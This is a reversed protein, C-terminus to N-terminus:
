KSLEYFSFHYFLCFYTIIKNDGQNKEHKQHDSKLLKDSIVNGIANGAISSGISSIIESSWNPKSSNHEATSVTSTPNYTQIINAQKKINDEKQEILEKNVKKENTEEHGKKEMSEKNERKENSEQYAKKDNKEKNANKNNAENLEKKNHHDKNEKKYIHDKKEKRDDHIISNNSKHNNSPSENKNLNPSKHTEPKRPTVKKPSSPRIFKSFTRSVSVSKKALALSKQNKIFFLYFVFLKVFYFCFKM